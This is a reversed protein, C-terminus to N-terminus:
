YTASRCDGDRRSLLDDGSDLLAPHMTSLHFLARPLLLPFCFYAYLVNACKMAESATTRMCSLAQIGDAHAKSPELPTEIMHCLGNGAADLVRRHRPFLHDVRVINLFSGILTSLTISFADYEKSM